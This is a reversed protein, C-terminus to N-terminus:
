RRRGSHRGPPRAAPLESLRARHSQWPRWAKLPRDAPDQCVSDLLARWLTLILGTAFRRSMAKLLPCAPARRSYTQRDWAGASDRSKDAFPRKMVISIRTDIRLLASELVRSTLADTPSPRTMPRPASCPM